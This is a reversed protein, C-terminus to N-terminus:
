SSGSVSSANYRSPSLSQAVHFGSAIDDTKANGLLVLVRVTIQRNTRNKSIINALPSFAPSKIALFSSLGFPAPSYPWSIMLRYMSTCVQNSIQWSKNKIKRELNSFNVYNSQRFRSASKKKKKEEIKSVHFNLQIKCRLTEQM